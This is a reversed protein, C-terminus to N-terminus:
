TCINEKYFIYKDLLLNGEVFFTKVDVMSTKGEENM